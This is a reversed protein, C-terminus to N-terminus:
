MSILQFTRCQSWILYKVGLTENRIIDIDDWAQQPHLANRYQQSRPWVRIIDFLDLLVVIVALLILSLRGLRLQATSLAM